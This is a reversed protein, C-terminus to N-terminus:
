GDGLSEGRGTMCLSLTPKSMTLTDPQARELGKVEATCTDGRIRWTVGGEDVAALQGNDIM